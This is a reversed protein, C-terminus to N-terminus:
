LTSFPLPSRRDGYDYAQPFSYGGVKPCFQLLGQPAHKEWEAPTVGMWRLALILAESHSRGTYHVRKDNRTNTEPETLANVPRNPYRLDLYRGANVFGKGGAVLTMVDFQNHNSLNGMDSQWLVLTNDLYTRGGSGPEEVDLKSLL